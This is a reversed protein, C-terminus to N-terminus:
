RNTISVLVSAPQRLGPPFKSHSPTQMYYIPLNVSRPVSTRAQNTMWKEPKPYKSLNGGNQVFSLRLSRDTPYGVKMRLVTEALDTPLLRNIVEEPTKSIDVLGDVDQATIYFSHGAFEVAHQTSDLSLAHEGNFDIIAEAFLPRALERVSDRLILQHQVMSLRKITKTNALAISQLGIALSILLMLSILTSILV